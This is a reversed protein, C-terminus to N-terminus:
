IDLWVHEKGFRAALCVPNVPGDHCIKVLVAKEISDCKKWNEKEIETRERM